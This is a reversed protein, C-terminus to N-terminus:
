RTGYQRYSPREAGDYFKELVGLCQQDQTERMYTDPRTTEM